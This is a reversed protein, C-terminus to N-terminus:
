PVSVSIRRFSWHVEIRLINITLSPEGNRKVNPLRCISMLESANIHVASPCSERALSLISQFNLSFSFFGCVELRKKTTTM